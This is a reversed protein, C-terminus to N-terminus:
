ASALLGVLSLDFWLSFLIFLLREPITQYAFPQLFGSTFLNYKYHLLIAEFIQIVIVAILVVALRRYRAVLNELTLFFM